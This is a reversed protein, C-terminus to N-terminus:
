LGQARSQEVVRSLSPQDRMRERPLYKVYTRIVMSPDAHGLQQAVWYISEGEAVLRSAFTHRCQYPNRYRVKAKRLLIAWHKQWVKPNSLDFIRGNALYTYQKQDRLADLAPQMLLVDRVGAKTKTTKLVGDVDAKSVRAQGELFDIDGWELAYLESSRLGTSFAFQWLNKYQGEATSLIQAVEEATFPEVVYDSKVQAKPIVKHVQVFNLPNTTLYGNVVADNFIVRLVALHNRISKAKYPMSSVWAVLDAPKVHTIKKDGWAPLIHNKLSFEYGRLTSAELAKAKTDRWDNILMKITPTGIKGEKARKSNPFTSLYDFVGRAIESKVGALLTSAYKINNATPPLKLTERCQRGEFSFAICISNGRPTIGRPAQKKSDM